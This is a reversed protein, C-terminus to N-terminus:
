GRDSAKPNPRASARPRRPTELKALRAELEDVRRALREIEADRADSAAAAAQARPAATRDVSPAGASARGGLIDALPGGLIDALPGGLTSAWPGGTTNTWAAIAARWTEMAASMEPTITGNAIGALMAMPMGEPDKTQARLEDRWLATWDRLFRALEPGGTPDEPSPKDPM